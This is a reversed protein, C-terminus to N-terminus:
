STVLGFFIVRTYFSGIRSPYKAANLPSQEVQNVSDCMFRGKQNLDFVNM